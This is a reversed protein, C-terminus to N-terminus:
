SSDVSFCFTFYPSIIRPSDPSLIVFLSGPLSSMPSAVAPDIETDSLDNCELYQNLFRGRTEVRV